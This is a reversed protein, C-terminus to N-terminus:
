STGFEPDMEAVRISGTGTALVFALRWYAAWTTPTQPPFIPKSSITWRDKAVAISFLDTDFLIKGRDAPLNPIDPFFVKGRFVAPTSLPGSRVTITCTDALRPQISITAKPGSLKPVPLTIGFRTEETRLNYAPLEKSIGLFMDVLENDNGIRLEMHTKYPREEFGLGSLQAQKRGSYLYLDSGIAASLANRLAEGTPMLHKGERRTSMNISKKNLTSNGHADEKRIRKLIKELPADLIHILYADSFGLTPDVKLVYVFSPKL